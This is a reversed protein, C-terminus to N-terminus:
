SREERGVPDRRRLLAGLVTRFARDRWSGHPALRVRWRRAAVLMRWGAGGELDHWRAQWDEASAKWAQARAQEGVLNSRLTAVEVPDLAQTQSGVAVPQAAASQAVQARLEGALARLNLNETWLSYYRREYDRIVRPWADRARRFRIAWPTIFSADFDVDRVFGQQAFFEAWGEVPQVNHHTVEKYDGPTSSFLVDASHACLNAIAQRGDTPTLHELVEICVMLDYDRELPDVLSGVRCFPAVQAHVQSIAYTSIDIGYAEVERHRLGEVLFGMACGADLVTRPRIEEVIRQAIGDFFALWEDDRQYPRGCGHAYYYADYVEGSGRENM